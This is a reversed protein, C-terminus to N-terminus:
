LTCSFKLISFSLPQTYLLLPLPPSSFPPSPCGPFPRNEQSDNGTRRGVDDLCGELLTSKALEREFNKFEWKILVTVILFTYTYKNALAREGRGRPGEDDCGVHM